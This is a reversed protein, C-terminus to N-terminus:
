VEEGINIKIINDKDRTTLFKEISYKPKFGLHKM